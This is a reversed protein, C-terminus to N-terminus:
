AAERRRRLLRMAALYALGGIVAFAASPSGGSTGADVALATDTNPPPAGGTSAAQV